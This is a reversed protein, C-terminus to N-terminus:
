RRRRILGLSVLGVIALSGPEPVPVLGITNPSGVTVTGRLVDNADDIRSTTMAMTISGGLTPDNFPAIWDPAGNNLDNNSIIAWAAPSLSASDTAIIYLRENQPLYSGSINEAKFTFKGTGLVTAPATGGSAGSTGSGADINDSGLFKVLTKIAAFDNGTLTAFTDAYLPDGVNDSSGPIFGVRVVSNAPLNFGAGGSNNASITIAANASSSLILAFGIAFLTNKNM